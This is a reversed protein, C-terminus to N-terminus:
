PKYILRTSVAIRNWANITIILMIIQATLHEGFTNIANQYTEEDVGKEAIKTVAETLQLLTKEKESFLHSEHWVSLAFIRRSSEGMKLADETHMDLCYACGNIQSARMKILEKLLPDLACSKGYNELAMMAEYAAPELDKIKIRNTNM